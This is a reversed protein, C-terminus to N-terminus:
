LLRYRISTNKAFKIADNLLISYTENFNVIYYESEDDCKDLMYYSYVMGKKISDLYNIIEKESKNMKYLEQIFEGTPIITCLLINNVKGNEIDCSQTMIIGNISKCKANLSNNDVSIYQPELIMCNNIIDGQLITNDQCDIKEWWKNNIM